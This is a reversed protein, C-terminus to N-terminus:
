KLYNTLKDKLKGLEKYDIDDSYNRELQYIKKRLEEKNLGDRLDNQFVGELYSREKPSLEPIQWLMKKFQEKYIIKGSFFGM